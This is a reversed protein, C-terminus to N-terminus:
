APVGSILRDSGVREEEARLLSGGGFPLGGPPTWRVRGNGSALARGEEAAVFVSLRNVLREQLFSESLRPGGEVLVGSVGKEALRLLAERLDLGNGSSSVRLVEVGSRRLGSVASGPAERSCIVVPAPSDPQVRLARARRPVDLRASLVVRRPQWPEVEVGPPLERVTLLPDDARVTAGGVLVAPALHRWLHVLRRSEPSSIERPAGPGRHVTGDELMAVKLHVFPRNAATWHIFGENLRRAQREGVGELVEVGARRLLDVGRGNVLENPDRMAVVARVFGAAAVRPACPPTRGQHTCPELTCVLTAGRLDAGRAAADSILAAEAHPLGPARHFGQALVEGSRPDLAVAGVMPNPSTRGGPRAALTLALEMARDVNM